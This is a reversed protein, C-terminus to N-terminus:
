DKRAFFACADRIGVEVSNQNRELREKIAEKAQAEDLPLETIDVFGTAILLQRVKDKDVIEEIDISDNYIVQGDKLKWWFYGFSSLVIFGGPKLVRYAEDLIKKVFVLESEGVRPENILNASLYGDVSGDKFPLSTADATVPEIKIRGDDKGDISELLPWSRTRAHNYDVPIYVINPNVKSMAEALPSSHNYGPGLSYGAGVNVVTKGDLELSEFLGQYTSSSVLDLNIFFKHGNDILYEIKQDVTMNRSPGLSESIKIANDAFFSNKSSPKEM